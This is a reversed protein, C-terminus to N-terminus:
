VRPRNKIMNPLFRQPAHYMFRLFGIIIATVQLGPGEPELM